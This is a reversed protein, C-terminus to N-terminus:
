QYLEWTICHLAGGHKVLPNAFVQIIEKNPFFNSFVNVAAKDNNCDLGKSLGPIIVTKPTEIYNLYCWTDKKLRGTYSLEQVDFHYDLIKHMRKCFSKMEKGMQSYNNMLLKGNGIYAIMGDAHGFQEEMDWPILILETCLAKEITDILKLPRINPNESIVKDTMITKDDCRVANGGDLTIDLHSNVTIGLDQIVLNQNTVYKNKGMDLYDPAFNFTIYRGKGIHLPMYDRAWVEKTNPLIQYKVNSRELANCLSVHVMPYELYLKESICIQMNNMIMGKYCLLEM